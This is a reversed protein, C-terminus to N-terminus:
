RNWFRKKRTQKKLHLMAVPSAPQMRVKSVFHGTLFTQAERLSEDNWDRAITDCDDFSSAFLFLKATNNRVTPSLQKLRQAIFVVDHGNHRGRTALSIMPKNQQGIYDGAEDCVVLLNHSAWFCRLFTAEDTFVHVGKGWANKTRPNHMPDFVIAAGGAALRQAVLERALVTKGSKTTGVVLTHAM